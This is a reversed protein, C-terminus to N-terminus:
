GNRAYVTPELTCLKEFGIKVFNQFYPAELHLAASFEVVVHRVGVMAHTMGNYGMLDMADWQIGNFGMTDWQIGNYGMEDCVMGDWQMGNCAENRKRWVTYSPDSDLANLKTRTADTCKEIVM